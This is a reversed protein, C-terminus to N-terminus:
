RGAHWAVALWREFTTGFPETGERLLVAAQTAAARAGDVLRRPYRFRVQHEAFEDEDLTEVSGGFTRIVDLDLDVQRVRDGHWECPTGINVYVQHLPHSSYFEATWWAGPPILSVFGDALLRPADNGRRVTTGAPVALWTGYRDEGLWRMMFQWHVRNPWKRGDWRM